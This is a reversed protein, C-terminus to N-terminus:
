LDIGVFINLICMCGELGAKIILVMGAYPSSEPGRVIYHRLFIYPIVFRIKIQYLCM